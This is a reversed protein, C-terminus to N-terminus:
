VDEKLLSEVMAAYVTLDRISDQHTLDSIAFRSMKVLMLEFLHWRHSGIVHQPVGNPFLIRVMPAVMRYNNGYIANRDQFTQAAERLIESVRPTVPPQATPQAAM